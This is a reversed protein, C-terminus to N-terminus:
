LFSGEKYESYKAQLYDELKFRVPRQNIPQTIPNLPDTPKNVLKKCHPCIVRLKM